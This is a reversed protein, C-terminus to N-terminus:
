LIRASSIMQQSLRVIALFLDITNQSLIKSAIYHLNTESSIPLSISFSTVDYGCPIFQLFILIDTAITSMINKDSRYFHSKSMMNKMWGSYLYIDRMITLLCPPSILGVTVDISFLDRNGSYTKSLNAPMSLYSGMVLSENFLSIISPESSSCITMKIHRHIHKLIMSIQQESIPQMRVTERTSM